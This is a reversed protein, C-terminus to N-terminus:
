RPAAVDSGCAVLTAGSHPRLGKGLDTSTRWAVRLAYVVSGWLVAGTGFCEITDRMSVPLAVALVALGMLIAGTRAHARCRFIQSLPLFHGGVILVIAPVTWVEMHLNRLLTVTGFIALWQVVNVAAFAGMVQQSEPTNSSQVQPLRRRLAIGASAALLFVPITMALALRGSLGVSTLGLAMWAAGFGGMITAGITAGKAREMRFQTANPM